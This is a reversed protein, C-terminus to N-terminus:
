RLGLAYNTNLLVADPDIDTYIIQGDANGASALFATAMGSYNLIKQQKRRRISTRRQEMKM